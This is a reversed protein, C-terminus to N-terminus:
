LNDLQKQRNNLNEQFNDIQDLMEPVKDIPATSLPTSTGSGDTPDFRPDSDPKKDQYAEPLEITKMANINHKIRVAEAQNQEPRTDSYQWNGKDDQWRYLQKSETPLISEKATQVPKLFDNINMYPTGDPKKIFFPSALGFVLALLLLKNFIGM